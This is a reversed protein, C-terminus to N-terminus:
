LTNTNLNWCDLFLLEHVLPGSNKSQEIWFVFVNCDKLINPFLNHIKLLVVTLVSFSVEWNGFSFIGRKRVPIIGQILTCAQSQSHHTCVLWWYDSPPLYQSICLQFLQYIKCLMGLHLPYTPWQNYSIRRPLMVYKGRWQGEEKSNIFVDSMKQCQKTVSAGQAIFDTNYKILFM